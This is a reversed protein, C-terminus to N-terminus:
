LPSSIYNEDEIRMPSLPPSTVGSPIIKEPLPAIPPRMGIPLPLLDDNNLTLPPPVGKTRHPSSPPGLRDIGSPPSFGCIKRRRFGSERLGLFPGKRM